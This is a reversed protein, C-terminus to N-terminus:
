LTSHIVRNHIPVILSTKWSGPVTGNSIPMNCLCTVMTLATHRVMLALIGDPGTAKATDLNTLLRVIEAKLCLLNAPCEECPYFTKELKPHYLSLSMSTCLTM